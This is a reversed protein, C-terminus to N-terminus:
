KSQKRRQIYITTGAVLVAAPLFIVPVWFMLRGQVMNMIIPQAQHQKPRIAILTEEEALWSVTNLFLDGNGSLNLGTDSAFDSDGYVVIRAKKTNRAEPEETKEESTVEGSEEKIEVTAVAAVSIPGKLDKNADFHATGRKLEGIDTEGWSEPGTKALSQATIGEPLQELVGISRAWPFFSAIQFNGTIEHPEYQSVVPMTPDAGFIRSLRDVIVDNGVKFGYKELFTVLSSTNEPDLMVLLKGGQQIYNDLSELEKPLLDKKPGNIILVSTDSPVRDERLLLLEKVEYNKDTIAKKAQSYGRAGSENLNGEDHGTLFYIVKKGERVVKLIANTIAEESTDTIKERNDGSELVITGYDRIEYARARGPNQDPDVIEYKFRPSYYAYRDLVENIGREQGKPFFVTAQVDRDLSKLIKISQESLTNLKDKTLDWRYSHRASIAEVVTIIGLVLIIMVTVNAGYKTSRKSLLLKLETFNLYIYALIGLLGIILLVSAVSTLQTQIAYIIGGAAILGLGVIGILPSYKQLM